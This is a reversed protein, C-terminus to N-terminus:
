NIFDIRLSESYRLYNILLRKTALVTSGSKEWKKRWQSGEERKFSSAKKRLVSQKRCVPGEKRQSGEEKKLHGFIKVKGFIALTKKMFKKKKFIKNIQKPPPAWFCSCSSLPLLLLLSGASGPARYPARNWSGPCVSLGSLWGPAGEM